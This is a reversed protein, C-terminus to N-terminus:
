HPDAHAQECPKERIDLLLAEARDHHEEVRVMHEQAREVHEVTRDAARTVSEVLRRLLDDWGSQRLWRPIMTMLVVLGWPGATAALESIQEATM